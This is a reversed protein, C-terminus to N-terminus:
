AAVGGSAQESVGEKQPLELSITSRNQAGDFLQVKEGILTDMEDRHEEYANKIILNISLMFEKFDSFYKVGLEKKVYKWFREILNLNPSYSPLFELNIGLQEARIQVAKCRQYKANDLIIYIPFGAYIAALDELLQIVQTATIYTDNTVTHVEKTVYNMAALVNYRNRGTFTYIYRRVKCWLAGLINNGMIFHAADVFFLIVEGKKAKEMLPREIKEYFERQADPDAKAPLSGCRLFKYGLSHLFNKVTSISIIKKIKQEIMEKIQRASRYDNKELDDVIEESCEVTKSHRGVGEKRKFAGKVGDQKYANVKKRVTERCFGTIRSIRSNSLGLMALLLVFITVIWTKPVLKFLVTEYIELIFNQVNVAIEADVESLKKEREREESESSEVTGDANGGETAASQAANATQEQALSAVLAELHAATDDDAGSDASADSDLGEAGAILQSNGEAETSSGDSKEQVSSTQELNQTEPIESNGKPEVISQTEDKKEQNLSAQDVSAQDISM